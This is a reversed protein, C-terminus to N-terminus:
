FVKRKSKLFDLFNIGRYKCTQQISLLMLYDKLGKERLLGKARTRYKALPKIANEVNNNNWPINDYNLFNFLKGKNRKFRKQYSEAIDTEYELNMIKNYFNDVDKVHKHLYKKRLGYKDITDIIKKLLKGFDAVFEKYEENFQNILLDTNLDRILHILCKQQQCPLSYYGAYFDSVLVGNFDKLMDKLFGAERNPKYLYYVTDMNTFVWVYGNPIGLVTTKTEDAHILNGKVISKLLNKYTDVYESALDTKFNYLYNQDIYINVYDMLMSQIKPMSTLYVIYQNM